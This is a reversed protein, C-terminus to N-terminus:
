KLTCAYFCYFKFLFYDHFYIKRIREKSVECNTTIKIGKLTGM